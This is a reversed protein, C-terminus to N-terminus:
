RVRCGTANGIRPLRCVRPQRDVHPRPAPQPPIAVVWVAAAQRAVLLDIEADHLLDVGAEPSAQLCAEVHDVQEILHVLDAVAGPDADTRRLEAGTARYEGPQGLM